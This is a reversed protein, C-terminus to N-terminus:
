AGGDTWTGGETTGFWDYSWVGSAGSSRRACLRLASGLVPDACTVKDGDDLAVGDLYIKDGAAPKVSWAAGGDGLMNCLIEMGEAAAVLQVVCATDGQGFNSLISNYHYLAGLTASANVSTEIAGCAYNSKAVASMSIGYDLYDRPFDWTVDNGAVIQVAPYAASRAPEEQTRDYGESLSYPVAGIRADTLGCNWWKTRYVNGYIARAGPNNVTDPITIWVDSISSDYITGAVGWNNDYATPNEGSTTPVEIQVRAIKSGVIDAGYANIAHPGGSFIDYIGSYRLSCGTDIRIASAHEQYDGGVIKRFEFNDFVGLGSGSLSLKVTDKCHQGFLHHITWQGPNASSSTNNVQVLAAASASDDARLHSIEIHWSYNGTWLVYAGSVTGSFRFGVVRAFLHNNPAVADTAQFVNVPTGDAVIRCGRGIFQRGNTYTNSNALADLVVPTGIKYTGNPNCIVCPKDSDIASQIASSSDTAGTPDAGFDDVYACGDTTLFDTGDSVALSGAGTNFWFTNKAVPGSPASARVLLGIDSM